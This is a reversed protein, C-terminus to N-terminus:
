RSEVEAPRRTTVARTAEYLKRRHLVRSQGEAM